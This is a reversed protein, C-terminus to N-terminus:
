KTFDFEGKANASIPHIKTILKTTPCCRSGKVDRDWCGSAVEIGKDWNLMDSESFRKIIEKPIQGSTFKHIKNIIADFDM